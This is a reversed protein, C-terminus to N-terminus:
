GGGPPRGGGAGGPAGRGGPATGTGGQTNDPKTNMEKFHKRIEQLVEESELLVVRMYSYWDQALAQLKQPDVKQDADVCGFARAFCGLLVEDSLELDRPMKSLENFYRQLGDLHKQALYYTLSWSAARAKKQLAEPDQGLAPRRFYNDTVVKKLTDLANAELKKKKLLENFQPLFTNSPLALSPWPSEPPTEFFSGVGFLAWEPVVVGRPLLGSAFLLQRSAFHTISAQEADYEMAKELLAMAEATCLDLMQATPPAGSRRGQLLQNRDYGNQWWKGNYLELSHYKEDLPTASVVTLGDRPAFYGNAVVPGSSLIKHFRDFEELTNLKVGLLREEPVKLVIGKLAFWYYYSAFANELRDRKTKVEVENNTPSNHLIAYHDSKYVQYGELLRGRWASSPDEKTIKRALAAKTAAYAKVAPHDKADPELKDMVETFQKLLGHTLAWEALNLVDETAPKERGKFVEGNKADFRKKVSPLKLFVFDLTGDTPKMLKTSGWRHRVEIPRGTAQGIALAQAPDRPLNNELEVVAVIIHPSEEDEPNYEGGFGGPGDGGGPFGGPGGGIGGPFGGRGMGGPLGMGGRGMGGIGGAGGIGGRGGRGIGGPLGMGGRGMGGIGGPLGMGGRGMGGIGGPMGGPFGGPGDGGGPIGGPGTQDQQKAQGLNAIIVVYDASAMGVGWSVLVAAALIWRKM